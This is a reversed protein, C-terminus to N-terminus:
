RNRAVLPLWTRGSVFLSRAAKPERNTDYIGWHCEVEPRGSACKWPEDFADFFYFEIGAQGAWELLQAAFLAQQEATPEPLPGCSGERGTGQTPWGTEGIVIRAAPFQSSLAGYKEQVFAVANEVAQCEWYPHIHVLLFDSCAALEPHDIWVHWPEATTVPLGTRGRVEQMAACLGTPTLQGRLVSESGVILSTVAASAQAEAVACEIEARDAGSDGSLWAGLALPLGIEQTATIVTQLNQCGYTRIGNAVLALLPMDERVEALTPYIGWEPSESQRFPGYAMGILGRASHVTPRGAGAEVAGPLALDAQPLWGSLWQILAAALVRWVIRRSV